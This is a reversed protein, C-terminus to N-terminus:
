NVLSTLMLFKSHFFSDLFLDTIYQYGLFQYFTKQVLNTCHNQNVKSQSTVQQLLQLTNLQDGTILQSQILQHLHNLMAAAESAESMCDNQHGGVQGESSEAFHM